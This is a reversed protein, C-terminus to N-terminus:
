SLICPNDLLEAKICLEGLEFNLINNTTTIDLKQNEQLAQGVALTMEVTIISNHALIRGQDVDVARDFGFNEQENLSNV